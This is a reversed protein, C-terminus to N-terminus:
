VFPCYRGEGAAASAGWHGMQQQLTWVCAEAVVACGVVVPVGCGWAAADGWEAEKEVGWGTGEAQCVWAFGVLCLSGPPSLLPM